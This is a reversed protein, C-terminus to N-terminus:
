ETGREQGPEVAEVEHTARLEWEVDAAALDVGCNPCHDANPLASDPTVALFQTVAHCVPCAASVAHLEHDSM